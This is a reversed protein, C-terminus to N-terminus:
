VPPTSNLCPGRHCYLLSATACCVRRMVVSKSTPLARPCDTGCSGDQPNRSQHWTVVTPPPLNDTFAPPTSHLVGPTCNQPPPPSTTWLPQHPVTYYVRHSTSHPLPPSQGYLSTPYQTTCGTHLATPYPPLNDMFAPPTGHLVGPTCHQPPPPSPANWLPQHPVTYYVRHATSHPLPPPHEMFAPPTGHLVGPTCHQPPPPSPTNWLPQQSM